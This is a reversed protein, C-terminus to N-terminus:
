AIRPGSSVGSVNVGAVKGELSNMVNVERSGTLSSGDVKTVSYGLTKQSHKMNLATVVTEEILQADSGLSINMNTTTGIMTELTTYGLYSIVLVSNQDPVSLTFKGDNDTVTGKASGKLTVTAGALSYGTSDTVHGTVQIQARTGIASILFLIFFLVRLVLTLKNKLNPKYIKKM